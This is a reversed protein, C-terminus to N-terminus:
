KKTQNKLIELFNQYDSHYVEQLREQLTIDDVENYRETILNTREFSLLYKGFKTLEIETFLKKNNKLNRM